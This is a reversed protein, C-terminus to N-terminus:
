GHPIRASFRQGVLSFNSNISVPYQWSVPETLALAVLRMQEDVAIVYKRGHVNPISCTPRDISFGTRLPFLWLRIKDPCDVILLVKKPGLIQLRSSLIAHSRRTNHGFAISVSRIRWEIPLDFTTASRPMRPNPIYLPNEKLKQRDDESLDLPWVSTEFSPESRQNYSSKLAFDTRWSKSAIRPLLYTVFPIPSFHTHARSVSSM